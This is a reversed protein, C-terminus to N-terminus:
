LFNKKRLKQHYNLAFRHAEHQVHFLIEKKFRKSEGIITEKKKSEGKTVGVVPIVLDEKELVRKIANVQGRGGDIVLLSPLPWSRKLRRQLVEQLMKTDDPGVVEKIKFLRYDEKKPSDGQFVVMSGVAFNGSINSIDYGEIRLSSSDKKKKGVLATEQIHSLADRKKKIEEAKEYEMKKSAEKMQKELESIIKKKKGKFFLEINKINRLYDGKEVRGVCTGPCLGIQYYFCPKGKEREGKKHTSYPFIRRITKLAERIESSYVFPGFVNRKKEKGLDKGRKLIVRPYDEKTTVVYLFSRDDNEKINYFPNKEKILEAERILAEIVTEKTEYDITETDAVIKRNKVDKGTFYSRVRRRLNSAKGIYVPKGEKDQFLYVGPTEPLKKIEDRLKKM